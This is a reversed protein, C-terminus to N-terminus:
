RRKSASEGWIYNLLLPFFWITFLSGMLFALANMLDGRMLFINYFSIFLALVKYYSGRLVFINIGRGIYAMIVAGIVIGIWRFSIYLESTLPCSLNNFTLNYNQMLYNGTMEGSSLPKSTWIKRPVFFLVDGIFQRFLPIDGNEVMQIDTNLNSWADFHLEKFQDYFMNSNYYFDSKGLDEIGGKSHTINAMLPFVFIMALTIIIFVKYAKMKKMITALVTLYISGFLNRSFVLPNIVILSLIGVLILKAKNKINLNFYNNLENFLFYAPICLIFNHVILEISGSSDISDVKRYLVIGLFYKIFILFTVIFIVLYRKNARSSIEFKKYKYKITKDFFARFVIYVGIFVINILNAKIVLSREIYMGTPLRYINLQIVPAIIFFLMYFTLLTAEFYWNDNKIILIALVLSLINLIIFTIVISNNYNVLSNIIFIDILISIFIGILSLYIKKM